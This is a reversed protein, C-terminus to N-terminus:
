KECEHQGMYGVAPPIKFSEKYTLLFFMPISADSFPVVELDSTLVSVSSKRSRM